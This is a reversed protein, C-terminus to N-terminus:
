QTREAARQAATLVENHLEGNSAVLGPRGPKWERGHVDTVTGGAQRVHHVGAVTDWPSPTESLGITADLAGDAVMSLTLQASGTRRLEGFEDIVREALVSINASEERHLRLTSAVLFAGPDGTESVSMVDGDRHITKQAMTYTDGLAPAANVSAMPRGNEVLAVSTVWERTGRTYNLTGDIPDIIWAYGEDPVTKREDGEEAVITDDPFEERIAAITREQTERDIETVLDIRSEKEEVELDTRFRDYAYNAGTAAASRVIQPRNVM